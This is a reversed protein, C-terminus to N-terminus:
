KGTQDRQTSQAAAPKGFYTEDLTPRSATKFNQMAAQANETQVKKEIDAKVEAFEKPKREKTVILHWGYETKIPQSVENIPLSFAADEIPAVLRGKGFVGLDGGKAGSVADDSETKAVAAFDEGKVIRDRIAKIKALADAEGIDQQNPKLPVRSGTFRILIQSAQAQEYDAKHAEYWAKSAEETPKNADLTYQYFLGALLSQEQLLLQVKASPKSDLKLKRAQDAFVVVEAFQEAFLRRTEPSDPGIKGRVGEPLNAVLAEFESRRMKISAATFVVPDGSNAEAAPGAMASAPAKPSPGATPAQAWLCGGITAIVILRM